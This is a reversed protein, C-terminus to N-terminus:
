PIEEGEYRKPLQYECAGHDVVDVEKKLIVLFDDVFQEHVRNRTPWAAKVCDYASEFTVGAGISTRCGVALSRDMAEECADLVVLGVRLHQAAASGVMEERIADDFVLYIKFVALTVAFLIWGLWQIATKM